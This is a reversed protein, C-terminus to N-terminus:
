FEKDTEVEESINEKRLLNYTRLIQKLFLEVLTLGKLSSMYSLKLRFKLIFYKKSVKDYLALENMRIIQLERDKSIKKKKTVKM